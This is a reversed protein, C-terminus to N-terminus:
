FLPDSSVDVSCLCLGHLRRKESISLLGYHYVITVEALYQCYRPVGTETINRKALGFIHFAQLCGLVWIHPQPRRKKMKCCTASIKENEEASSGCCSEAEETNEAPAIKMTEEIVGGPLAPRIAASMKAAKAKEGVSLGGGSRRKGGRNTKKERGAGHWSDDSSLKQGASREIVAAPQLMSGHGGAEDVPQRLQINM